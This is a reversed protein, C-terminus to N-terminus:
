DVDGNKNTKILMISETGALTATALAVYGGDTTQRISKGTDADLSGYNTSWQYDGFANVKMILLDTNGRGIIGTYTDITALIIFGGDKTPSV